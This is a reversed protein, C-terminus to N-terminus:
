PFNQLQRLLISVSSILLRGGIVLINNKRNDTQTSSSNDVGFITVNRTFHYGFSRSGIGDFAEEVMPFANAKLQM